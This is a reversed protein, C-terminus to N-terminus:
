ILNLSYQAWSPRPNPSLKAINDEDRAGRQGLYIFFWVKELVERITDTSLHVVINNVLYFFFMQIFLM